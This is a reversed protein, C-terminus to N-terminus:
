SLFPSLCRLIGHSPSVSASLITVSVILEGGGDFPTVGMIIHILHCFVPWAQESARREGAQRAEGRWAM